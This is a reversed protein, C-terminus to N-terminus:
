RKVPEGNMVQIMQAINADTRIATPDFHTRSARFGQSRLMTILKDSKPLVTAHFKKKHLDHYFLPIVETECPGTASKTVNGESHVHVPSKVTSDSEGNEHKNKLTGPPSEQNSESKNCEEKSMKNQAEDLTEGGGDHNGNELKQKKKAPEDSDQDLIKSAPSLYQQNNNRSAHMRECKAEAVVTEILANLKSKPCTEKVQSKLKELYPVSFINGCWMPGLIVATKGPNAAKCNCPLLKYPSEIVTHTDPHVVREECLLCHLVHRCLNTCQEGHKRIVRVAILLHDAINLTYLVELGKNFRAAARVAAGIIVRAAMERLYDTKIVHAHYQRHILHSSRVCQSSIDPSVLCAVGDHRLNTFLSDLYVSTTGNPQLYVFHFADKHLAINGNQPCVYIEKDAQQHKPLEGPRHDDGVPWEVAHQDNQECNSYFSQGQPESAVVHVSEGLRKKWQMAVLGTNSVADLCQLIESKGQCQILLTCLAAERVPALAPNYIKLREATTKTDPTSITVGLEEIKHKGEAAM